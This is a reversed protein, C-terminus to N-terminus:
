KAAGREVRRVRYALIDDEQGAHTWIWYGANQHDHETGDRWRVVVPTHLPLPVDGSREAGGWAIWGDASPVSASSASAYLPEIQFTDSAPGQPEYGVHHWDGWPLAPDQNRRERFRWAVPRAEISSPTAADLKTLLDDVRAVEESGGWYGEDQMLWDFVIQRRSKQAVHSPTRKSGESM